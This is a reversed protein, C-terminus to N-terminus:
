AGTGSRLADLAKQPIPGLTRGQTLMVLKATEELEEAAFVAADFSTGAVVPGHNALLFASHRAACSHILPVIEATGPQFYPLVPVRGVRMVVYPTIPPIADEVDTDALCSLATAYTSHLHVVGFADPRAAYVALHLPLEKTPPDGSLHRGQADVKSLRAPELFGLCSNTPTMLFGDALRASLNGSSGFTLGRDFMSKGWRCIDLRLAQEGPTM